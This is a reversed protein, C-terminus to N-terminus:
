TTPRTVQTLQATSRDWTSWTHPSVLVSYTATPIGVRVQALAGLDSDPGALYAATASMTPEHGVLLVTHLGEDVGRLIRLTETVTALYLEPLFRVEPSAAQGLEAAVLAWTQRTRQAASVLALDPVLGVAALLRGVQPSQLRGRSALGRAEDTEGFREAKAHRLLVLQRM